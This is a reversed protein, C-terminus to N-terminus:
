LSSESYCLHKGEVRAGHMCELVLVPMFHSECEISSCPLTSVASAQEVASLPVPVRAPAIDLRGETHRCTSQQWVEPAAM